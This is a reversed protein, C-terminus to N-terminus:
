PKQESKPIAVFALWKKDPSVALRTINGIGSESFDAANAM